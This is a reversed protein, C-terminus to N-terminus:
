SLTAHCSAHSMTCAQLSTDLIHIDSARQGAEAALGLMKLHECQSAAKARRELTFRAKELM